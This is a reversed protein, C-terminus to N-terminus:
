RNNSIDTGSVRWCLLRLYYARVLPSWHCFMDLWIQESLLWPVLDAVDLVMADWCGYLFALARVETQINKSQVMRRVVTFWFGWDVTATTNYMVRFVADALDCLAICGFLDYLSTRQAAAHLIVEFHAGYVAALRSSALDVSLLENIARLVRMDAIKSGPHHLATGPMSAAMTPMSVNEDGQIPQKSRSNCNGIGRSLQRHIRYDFLILIRASIILVGPACLLSETEAALRSESILVFYHKLFSAFLDSEHSQWRSVWAGYIDKVLKPPSPTRGNYASHKGVLSHLHSPFMSSTAEARADLTVKAVRAAKILRNIEVQRVGLLFLLVDAVGQLAFFAHAFVQGAFVSINISIPKYKLRTLAFSLTDALLSNYIVKNSDSARQWENRSMIGAVTELYAGRDAGAVPHSRDKLAQLTSAWWNRLIQTRRHLEASSVRSAEGQHTRLFPLVSLRLVNAKHITTRSLFKSFDQEIVKFEETWITQMKKDSLNRFVHRGAVM